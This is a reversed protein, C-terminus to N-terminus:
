VKILRSITQPIAESSFSSKIVTAPESLLWLLLYTTNISGNSPEELISTFTETPVMKETKLLTVGTPVGTVM